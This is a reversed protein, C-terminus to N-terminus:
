GTPGGAPGASNGNDNSSGRAPDAGGTEGGDSGGADDSTDEPDQEALGGAAEGTAPAGGDGVGNELNFLRAVASVQDADALNMVRVGTADRGQQSIDAVATRIVVGGSSILLVEDDFGVFM